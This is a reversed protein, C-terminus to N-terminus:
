WAIVVEGAVHKWTRWLRVDRVAGVAVGYEAALDRDSEGAASRKRIARVRDATLKAGKRQEGLKIKGNRVADDWNDRGTGWELNM